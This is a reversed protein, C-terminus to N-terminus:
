TEDCKQRFDCNAVILKQIQEEKSEISQKLQSIQNAQLQTSNQSELFQKELLEMKQKLESANLKLTQIQQNKSQVEQKL